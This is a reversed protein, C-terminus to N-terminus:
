GPELSAKVYAELTWLVNGPHMFIVYNNLFNYLHFVSSKSLKPM